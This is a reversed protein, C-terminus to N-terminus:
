FKLKGGQKEEIQKWTLGFVGNKSSNAIHTKMEELSMGKNAEKPKRTWKCNGFNGCQDCPYNQTENSCPVTHSM